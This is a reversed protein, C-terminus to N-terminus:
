FARNIVISDGGADIDIAACRVTRSDQVHVLPDFVSRDSNSLDTIQIVDYFLVVTENFTSDYRHLAELRDVRRGGRQTTEYRVHQAFSLACQLDHAISRRAIGAAQLRVLNLARRLEHRKLIQLV